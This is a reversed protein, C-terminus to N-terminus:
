RGFVMTVWTRDTRSDVCRLAPCYHRSVEDAETALVGGLILRGNPALLRKLKPAMQILTSSLINATILEFRRRFVGLPASSFDVRGALGNRAANERANELAMGDTDIGSADKVGLLKMALALIGSGTGVDLASKFRRAACLEELVHLVGYTTPHHGTGFAQAPKIVITLRGDRNRTTKQWPPVILFRCGIPMPRFRKMWLTAWGPDVIRRARPEGAVSNLMGTSAMAATIRGLHARTIRKFYAEMAVVNKARAGASRAPSVACGLAGHAVLIGAAEDAMAASTHFVVKVYSRASPVGTGM